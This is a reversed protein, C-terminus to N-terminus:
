LVNSEILCMLCCFNRTYTKSTNLSCGRMRSSEFNFKLSTHRKYIETLKPHQRKNHENHEDFWKYDDFFSKLCLMSTITFSLLTSKMKIRKVVSQM